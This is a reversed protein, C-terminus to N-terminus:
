PEWRFTVNQAEPQSCIHLRGRSAKLEPGKEERSTMPACQPVWQDDQDDNVKVTQLVEHLDPAQQTSWTPKWRM